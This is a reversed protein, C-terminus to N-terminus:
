FRYSVGAGGFPRSVRSFGIEASVRFEEVVRIRVGASGRVHAGGSCTDGQCPARGLGLGGRVFPAVRRVPVEYSTSVYIAWGLHDSPGIGAGEFQHDTGIGVGLGSSFMWEVTGNMWGDRESQEAEVNRDAGYSLEVAVQAKSEAAFFACALVVVALDALAEFSTLRKLIM